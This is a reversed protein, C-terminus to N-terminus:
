NLLFFFGAEINTRNIKPRSFKYVIDTVLFSNRQQLCLIAKGWKLCALLSQLIRNSLFFNVLQESQRIAVLRVATMTFNLNRIPKTIRIQQCWRTHSALPRWTNTQPKLCVRLQGVRKADTCCWAFIDVLAPRDPCIKVLFRLSSELILSM